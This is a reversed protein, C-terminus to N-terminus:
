SIELRTREPRPPAPKVRKPKYAGKPVPWVTVGDQPQGLLAFAIRTAHDNNRAEFFAEGEVQVVKVGDPPEGTLPYEAWANTGTQYFAKYHRMEGKGRAPPTTAEADPESAAPAAPTQEPAAAAEPAAPPEPAAQPPAAAVEPPAPTAQPEEPPQAAEEPAAPPEAAMHDAPANLEGTDAASEVPPQAAAPDPGDAPAPPEAPEGERNVIPPEEAPTAAVEAALDGEVTPPDAFPDAAPGGPAADAFPDGGQTTSSEM